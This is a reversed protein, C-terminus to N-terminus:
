AMFRGGNVDLTVGTVFSAGPGALWCIADAVEEPTGLRRMPTADALARLADPGLRSVRPSLVVGPAVANVTVGDAAVELAIQRTLGVVAAKAATYPHAAQSLATRAAMSAVTVVRGYRQARMTPVVARCALFTATLNAAILRNWEDLGVDQLPGTGHFGGAATVLVDVRGWRALTARVAGDVGAEETADAVAVVVEAADTGASRAVAAARDPHRDVLMVHAGSAALREVCAQGIGAGGGTVLAV